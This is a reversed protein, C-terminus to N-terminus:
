IEEYIGCYFDRVIKHAMDIIERKSIIEILYEKDVLCQSSGFDLAIVTAKSKNVGIKVLEDVLLERM